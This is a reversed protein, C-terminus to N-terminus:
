VEERKAGAEGLIGEYRRLVSLFRLMMVSTAGHHTM